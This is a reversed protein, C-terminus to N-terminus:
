STALDQPSTGHGALLVAKSSIEHANLHTGIPRVESCSATFGHILFVGLDKGADFEFPEAGPLM